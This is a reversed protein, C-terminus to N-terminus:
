KYEIKRIRNNLLDAVYVVGDKTVAIGNPYNFRASTKDGDAFGATSPGGGAITTVDGDPTIMRIAQNSADSVWINGANDAALASINFFKAARGKGDKLGISGDGAFVTAQGDPTIKKILCNGNGSIYLNGAKDVAIASLYHVNPTGIDPYGTEDNVPLTTVMGTSSVKRIRLSDELTFDPVYINNQADVAMNATLNFRASTDPGDKYSSSTYSGAFISNEMPSKIERIFTFYDDIFLRGTHDVCLGYINGFEEGPKEYISSGAYTTVKGDTTIKRINKNKTDGVFLNGEDDITLGQPLDFQASAGTGDNSGAEASGAFTSVVWTKVVPPVV